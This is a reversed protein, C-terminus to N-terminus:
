GAAGVAAVLAAARDRVVIPDGSATLWGGVGVALAGARIYAAATELTIGGTPVLPIDGFPGRFERVFTPGVASAPFLKVAAAGARWAAHIETPTFAGPFAPLGRSAAWEVLRTDTHPSVLFRAGAAVAQAGAGADLITGAGVLLEDPDFAATLDAIQDLAEPRNLTVEFAHIGADRLARAVALVDARPLGRGIAIVRGNVICQPIAPRQWDPARIGPENM